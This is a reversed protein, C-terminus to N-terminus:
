DQGTAVFEWWLGCASKFLGGWGFFYRGQDEVAQRSHVWIKHFLKLFTVSDVYSQKAKLCDRCLKLWSRPAHFVVGAWTQKPTTKKKKLYLNEESIVLFASAHYFMKRTHNQLKKFFRWRVVSHHRVHGTWKLTTVNHCVTVPKDM